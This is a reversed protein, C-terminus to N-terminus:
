HWFRAKVALAAMLLAAGILANYERNSWYREASFSAGRRFSTLRFLLMPVQQAYEDFRERYAGRLYYEELRIVPLYIAFLIVVMALVVWVSRAAVAFGTAMIISGSYLPHRTYAYPGTITLERDKVVHGAAAARIALGVVIIVSGILMSRWTPKAVWFYFIAFAFGLPM